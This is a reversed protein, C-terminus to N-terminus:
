LQTAIEEPTVTIDPIATFDPTATFDPVPTASIIITQTAEPTNTWVATATSELTATVKPSRPAIFPTATTNFACASLVLSLGCYLFWVASQRRRFKLPM